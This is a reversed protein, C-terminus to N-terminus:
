PFFRTPIRTLLFFTEKNGQKTKIEANGIVDSILRYIYIKSFLKKNLAFYILIKLFADM